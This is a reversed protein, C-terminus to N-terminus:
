CTAERGEKRLVGVSEQKTLAKLVNRLAENSQKLKENEWKEAELDTRAFACTVLAFLLSLM